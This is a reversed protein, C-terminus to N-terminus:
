KYEFWTQVVPKKAVNEIMKHNLEMAAKLEESKNKIYEIDDKKDASVEYINDMNLGSTGGLNRITGSMEQLQKFVDGLESVAGKAQEVKGSLGRNIQAITDDIQGFQINLAETVTRLDQIGSTSGLVASVRGSIDEIDTDKVTVVLADITGHVPESCIITFDGRGWVALFSVAYEYIGTSGIETMAKGSLLLVNAPSYVSIVPTLGSDTRYRIALSSGQKVSTESNLIGSTIHPQVDEVMQTKVETLKDQLSTEGTAALIKGTEDKVESLKPSIVDEIQQQIEEKVAQQITATQAAIGATVTQIASTVSKLSENVTISFTIGGEYARSTGDSGGYNVKVRAYYTRGATLEIEGGGAIVNGVVKYYVGSSAEPLVIDSYWVAPSVSDNYIQVIATGLSNVSDGTIIIGRRELWVRISLNDSSEDYVFASEVSYDSTAEVLSTAMVTWAIKADYAGDLYDAPVGAIKTDNQDVYQEKSVTFVYEGYPLSFSFPSNGTKPFGEVQVGNETCNLTCETLNTGSTYDKVNYTIGYLKFVQVEASADSDNVGSADAGATLTIKEGDSLNAAAFNYFAAVGAQATVSGIASDPISGDSPTLSVTTNSSSTNGYADSVAVSFERWPANEVVVNAPQVDWILSSAEGGSVTVALANSNSTVLSAQSDSVKIYAVEAKYLTMSVLSTNKGNTFIIPVNNIDEDTSFEIASGSVGGTTVTVTPTFIDSGKTISNAGTFYVVKPSAGSYDRDLNDLSDVAKITLLQSIGANVASSGTVAFSTATVEIKPSASYVATDTAFTSSVADLTIDTLPNIRIGIVTGDVTDPSPLPNKLIIKLTFTTSVNNLVSNATPFVMQDSAIVSAMMVSGDDGEIYAEKIYSAWGGTTDISTDRKVLIQTISTNFGDSGGDTIKFDLVPTRITNALSSISSVAGLTGASVVAEHATAFSIMSSYDASLGPVTLSPKLFINDPYNYTIGSFSAVGDVAAVTLGGSASLTHAAPTGETDSYALMSINETFSTIANGYQDCVSVAPQQALAQSTVCAASPQTSFKVKSATGPLITIINSSVDRGNDLNVYRALLRVDQARHLVAKIDLPDSSGNTFQINATHFEDATGEPGDAEGLALSWSVPILLNFAEASNSNDCINGFEDVVHLDRAISFEAGANQPSAVNGSFKLHDAQAHKVSVILAQADSTVASGATAKILSNEAKYFVATASAQGQGDFTLPVSTVPDSSFAELEAVTPKYDDPSASAGSFIIGRQGADTKLNGLTDYAKVTLTLGQGCTASVSSAGSSTIEFHDLGAPGVTMLVSASQGTIGTEGSDCAVAIRLSDTKDDKYYFSFGEDTASGADPTLTIQKQTLEDSCASDTYFKGTAQTTEAPMIFNTLNFVTEQFVPTSNGYVDQISLSFEQSAEGADVDSPGTFVLAAPAEPEATVTFVQTSGDFGSTATVAYTGKKDGFTLVAQAEGNEDTVNPTDQTLFPEVALDDPKSTIEFTISIDVVPDGTGSEETAAKVKFPELAQLVKVGTQGDGGSKIIGLPAIAQASFQPTSPSGGILGAASATLTYTGGASGLVLYASAEGDSGSVGEDVPEVGADNDGGATFTVTVGSVPNGYQDIIKVVCPDSLSQGLTGTQGSGSITLLRNAAGDPLTVDADLTFGEPCMYPLPSYSADYAIVSVDNREVKYAKLIFIQSIGSTFDVTKYATDFNTSDAKPYSIVSTAENTISNLGTFKFKLNASSYGTDLNNNADVALLKIGTGTDGSDFSVSSGGDVTVVQIRTVDVKITGVFAIADGAGEAMGSSLPLGSSINEDTYINQRDISFIYTDGDSADLASAKMCINVTYETGDEDGSAAASLSGLGDSNTEDGFIIAEDTIVAKHAGTLATSALVTVGDTLEAYAIDNAASGGTGSVDVIIRDVLTPLSDIVAGNDDIIKFKLAAFKNGDIDGTDKVPNINFATVAEDASVLATEHAVAFEIVNSYAIIGPVATTSARLYINGLNDYQIGTFAARCSSANLPDDPVTLTGPANMYLLNDADWICANLYVPITDQSQDGEIDQTENGYQDLLSVTASFDSNVYSAATPQLVDFSISYFAQPNIIVANSYEGDVTLGSSIASLRVGTTNSRYFIVAPATSVGATFTVDVTRTDAFTENPADYIGSDLSFTVSKLGEYATAGNAGNALNDFADMAQLPPLSFQTGAQQPSAISSQFKLYGAAAHRVIIDSQAGTISTNALDAASVFKLGATKLTVASAFTHTGNDGSIFTYSNPLGEGALVQADDSTFYVTGRYGTAINDFQDKATVMVDSSVGATAPNTVGSVAFSVTDDPVINVSLGYDASGTSNIVSYNSDQVDLLASEVKFSVLTVAGEASVGSSFGAVIINGIDEGEISAKTGDPSASLGSFILAKDGLYSTVINGLDDAATIILEIDSGATVDGSGQARTIRLVPIYVFSDIESITQNGAMNVAKARVEYAKGAMLSANDLTYTWIGSGQLANNWQETDSSWDSGNWYYDTQAGKQKISVQLGTEAVLGLTGSFAGNITHTDEWNSSVYYEDTITVNVAPATNDFTVSSSDTTSTVSTASNGITDSFAINFSVVGQTDDATMTYSATWDSESGSVDASNGAITVVPTQLGEDSAMTLTITDGTKAYSTNANNSAISVSTLTPATNDVTLTATSPNSANGAADIVYLKYEGEDAPALISTATGTATTM